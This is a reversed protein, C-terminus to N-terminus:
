ISEQDQSLDMFTIIIMWITEEKLKIVNLNEMKLNLRILLININQNLKTAKFEM